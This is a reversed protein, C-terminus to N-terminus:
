VFTSVSTKLRVSLTTFNPIPERYLLDCFGMIFSVTSRKKNLFIKSIRKIVIMWQPTHKQLGEKPM